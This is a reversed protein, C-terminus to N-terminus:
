WRRMRRSGAGSNSWTEERLLGMAVGEQRLLLDHLLFVVMVAM